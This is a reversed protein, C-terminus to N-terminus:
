GSAPLGLATSIAVDAAKVKVAAEILKKTAARATNVDHDTAAKSIKKLNVSVINLSSVLSDLTAKYRPPPSLQSLEEAQAKAHDGLDGLETALQADTKSAAGTLASQVDSGLKSFQKKDAVFGAKFAAKSGGGTGATASSTSTTTPAASSTTSTTATSSSSSAPAASSTTTKSSSGCGAVAIGLVTIAAILSRNNL